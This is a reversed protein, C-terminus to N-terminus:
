VEEEEKSTKRKTREFRLHEDWGQVTETQFVGETSDFFGQLDIDYSREEKGEEGEEEGEEGEGEGEQKM